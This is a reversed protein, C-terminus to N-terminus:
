GRLPRMLSVRTEQVATLLSGLVAVDPGSGFWGGQEDLRAALATELVGLEEDTLSPLSALAGSV